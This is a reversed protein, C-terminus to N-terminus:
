TLETTPESTKTWPCFCGQGLLNLYQTRDGARWKDIHAAVLDEGQGCVSGATYPGHYILAGDPAFISVSPSSIAWDSLRVGGVSRSENPHVHRVDIYNKEIDEVHPKAFRNCSCQEDLYHVLTLQGTAVRPMGQLDPAKEHLFSRYDSAFVQWM